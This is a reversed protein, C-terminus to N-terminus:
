SCNAPSGNLVSSDGFLSRDMQELFEGTEHFFHSGEPFLHRYRFMDPGIGIFRTIGKQRALAAIEAYLVPKEKGSQLLDSLILVKKGHQKQQDLLDLAASLGGIDSNYADNILISGYIGRLIEMRMSVPELMGAKQVAEDLGQGVELSFTFAHLANELSAEDSFPLDLEAPGAPTRAAVRTRGGGSEMVEYVYNAEGGLSWTVKECDMGALAKGVMVYRDGDGTRFIVKRCGSFLKLKEQLKEGIDSFNEQHATGINTFLGIEPDIIRQLREMEGPKSIGAEIVALEDRDRIMMVALPVGLQSNYSKPSRHVQFRGSLMQYIWEKVITKGNSGTIAAVRGKFSRRREAALNQLAALTDKVLCFGAGPCAAPDPLRSVLFARTGQRYLDGIFQHGDHRDGELAVFLTGPGPVMIRSDFALDSIMIGGEGHLYGGARKCIDYLKWGPEM